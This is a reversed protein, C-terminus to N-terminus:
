NDVGVVLIKGVQKEPHCRYLQVHGGYGGSGFLLHARDLLRLFASTRSIVIAWSIQKRYTYTHINLVKYGSTGTMALAAVVFVAICLGEAEGPFIPLLLGSRCYM